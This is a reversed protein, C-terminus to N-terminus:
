ENVLVPVGLTAAAVRGAYRAPAVVSFKELESPTGEHEVDATAEDLHYTARGTGLFDGRGDYFGVLVQLELVDSVDSTVHLRGSVVGDAVQLRDLTFRDSFPGPVVDVTGPRPTADAIGPLRPEGTPPTLGPLDTRVVAAPDVLDAASAPEDSRMATVVLWTAVVAVAAVAPVALVMAALAARRTTSM